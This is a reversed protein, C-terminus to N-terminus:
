KLRVGTLAATLTRGDPNRGLRLWSQGAEWTEAASGAPSGKVGILAHSRSM